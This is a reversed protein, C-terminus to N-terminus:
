RLAVCIWPIMHVCWRVDHMYPLIVHLHMLQEPTDLLPQYVSLFEWIINNSAVTPTFTHEKRSSVFLCWKNNKFM